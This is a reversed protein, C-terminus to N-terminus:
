SVRCLDPDCACQDEPVTTAKYGCGSGDSTVDVPSVGVNLPSEAAVCVAETCTEREACLSDDPTGVCEGAESCADTTCSFPDECAAGSPLQPQVWICGWNSM